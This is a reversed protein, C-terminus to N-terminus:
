QAPQAAPTESPAPTTPQNTGPTGAPLQVNVDLKGDQPANNNRIAPLVYSFFLGIALIVVLVGIILSVGSTDEGQRPTNIVTTM